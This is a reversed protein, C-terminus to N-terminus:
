VTLRSTPYVSTMTLSLSYFFLRTWTCSRML